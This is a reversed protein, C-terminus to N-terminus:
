ARSEPFPRQQEFAIPKFSRVKRGGRWLNWATIVAAACARNREDSSRYHLGATNQLLAKHMSLLPNDADLSAGNALAEVFVSIQAPSGRQAILFLAAAVGSIPMQQKIASAILRSRKVAESVAAQHEAVFPVLRSKDFCRAMDNFLAIKADELILLLRATSAVNNVNAVNLGGFQLLHAGTRQVGQDVVSYVDAPQGYTAQTTITVGSLACASLRHQGDAIVGDVRFAIGQHSNPNWRGHEMQTALQAVKSPSLTRNSGSPACNALVYAAYEPAIDLQETFMGMRAARAVRQKHVEWHPLRHVITGTRATGNKTVTPTDLLM